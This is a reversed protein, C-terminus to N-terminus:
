VFFINKYYNDGTNNLISEVFTQKNPEYLGFRYGM